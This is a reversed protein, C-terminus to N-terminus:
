IWWNVSRETYDEWLLIISLFLALYHPLNLTFINYLVLCGALNIRWQATYLDYKDKRVDGVVIWSKQRLKGMVQLDPGIFHTM